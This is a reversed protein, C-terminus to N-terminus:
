WGHVKTWEGSVLLGQLDFEGEANRVSEGCRDSTVVPRRAGGSGFYDIYRDIRKPRNVDVDVLRARM